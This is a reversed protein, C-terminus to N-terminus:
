RGGIIELAKNTIEEPEFISGGARGYFHVPYKGEVGLRVDEVMQGMSLEAVLIHKVSAPLNQFVAYPFPWLTIPRILGAKVGKEALQEIANLAIRAPTGYAVIAMTDGDKVTNEVLIENQKIQDYVKFRAINMQELTEAVLSLSNIINKPRSGSNGNAAWPKEIKNIVGPKMELPEKMQGLLGDMLLMAPTRYKDATNFAHFV